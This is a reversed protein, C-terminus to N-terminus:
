VTVSFTPCAFALYTWCVLSLKRQAIPSLRAPLYVAKSVGATEDMGEEGASRGADGGTGASRSEEQSGARNGAGQAGAGQSGAGQSGAPQSSAAHSGALHANHDPPLVETDEEPRKEIWDAWAKLCRRTNKLHELLDNTKPMLGLTRGLSNLSSGAPEDPNMTHIRQSVDNALLNILVSLTQLSFRNLLMLQNCARYTRGRVDQGAPCRYRSRCNPCVLLVGEPVQVHVDEASRSERRARLIRPPQLIETSRLERKQGAAVQETPVIKADTNRAAAEESEEKLLFSADDMSASEHAAVNERSEEDNRSAEDPSPEDDPLEEEDAASVPVVKHPVDTIRVPPQNLQDGKRIALPEEKPEIGNFSPVDELQADNKVRPLADIEQKLQALDPPEEPEDSGLSKLDSSTSHEEDVGSQGDTRMSSVESTEPERELIAM